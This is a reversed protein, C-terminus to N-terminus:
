LLEFTVHSDSESATMATESGVEVRSCVAERDVIFNEKSV